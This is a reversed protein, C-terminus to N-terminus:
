CAVLQIVHKALVFSCCCCRLEALIVVALGFWVDNYLLMSYALAVMCM